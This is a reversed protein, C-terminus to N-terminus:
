QLIMRYFVNSRAPNVTIVLQTSSGSNPVPFWNTTSVVSNINSQVAWGLYNPPWGLTLTNGSLTFSMNTPTTPIVSLVAITGDVALKNTWIASGGTVTMAGGGTLAKNFLTFTDGAILAAGLNTVTVTGTGVNALTGSVIVKDSTPVSAKDVEINLNGGLTLNNNITLTGISSGPAIASNTLVTVPGAITGTGGLTGNTAVTVAGAGLQGNIRLTGNTILTPGTYTETNNLVLTGNGTKTIGFGSGSVVGSITTLGTNDVQLVRNTFTTTGDNGNLTYDGTFTLNNTGGIILTQNNTGSPYQLPNAITRAGGWALVTGNGTLNPAETSIYLPGSGIPGSTVTGSTPTSDAGLGIPGATPTTGGVYTNQGTFVSTGNGRSIIGGNGSIVGNYVQLGSGNYPALVTGAYQAPSVANGNLVINADMTTDTGYVRIRTVTTTNTPDLTLAKGATGSLNGLFVAGFAGSGDVQMRFDDAVDVDGSIGLTASGSQTLEMQGGAKALTVPGSGLGNYNLLLLYASANSIITGGTYTNVNGISLQDSSRYILKGPGAFSGTSAATFTYNKTGEVTVSSASLYKGTLTVTRIGGSETDDFTVADGFNFTAPNGGVLWNASTNLDWLNGNGSWVLNKATGLSLSAKTSNTNYGGTGTITVFYGDAGSAVDASSAPSIVLTDSTAGAISGGNVLNTGYRHWQYTMNFGQAVVSFACAAGSPVTANVPQTLIDPPATVVTSQANVIISSIGLASGQSSGSMRWGVALGDFASTLLNAGTADKQQAFILAGGTGVGAFVANSITLTGVASLTIKLYVTNASGQAFTMTTTAAVANTVATSGLNNGAPDKFAQSGSANSFLLDQAQSTTTSIPTQAPRTIISSNGSFFSRGIYGLWDETGGVVGGAINAVSSSFQGQNPAVGGSNFLGINLSSNATSGGSLVNSSNVFVVTLDIYDGVQSLAVPSNTFLALTEGLVSSTIPFVIELNGATLSPTTTANTSGIVTQYSAAHLTPAAPPQNLTSSNTFYDSFYTAAGFSRSSALVLLASALVLYLNKKM